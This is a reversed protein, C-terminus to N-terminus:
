QIRAATVDVDGPFHFIDFHSAMKGLPEIGLLPLAVGDFQDHNVVNDNM